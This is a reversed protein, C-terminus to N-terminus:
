RLGAEFLAAIAQLGALARMQLPITERPGHPAAVNIRILAGGHRHAIHESYSRVAPLQVGAGLEVIALRADRLSALWADHREWAADTRSSLWGGDGFMLVNPRALKGCRPCTPLDGRVRFDQADIEFGTTSAPWIEASCPVLCQLHHISGHCEVIREDSFAAAQFQGDVNSTFVRGGAPKAISWRRLIEFGAHPHASRYLMQRHGYFAWALRPDREFWHPQAMQEFSVGREALRPYARWFGGESRFDPLGSDVGMGAGATVLLAEAAEIARAASEIRGPQYDVITM